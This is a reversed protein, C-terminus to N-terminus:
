LSHESQQKRGEDGGGQRGRERLRGQHGHRNLDFGARALKGDIEGELGGLGANGVGHQIGGQKAEGGPDGALGPIGIPRPCGTM